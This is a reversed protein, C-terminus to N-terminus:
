SRGVLKSAFRAFAEPGETEFVHASEAALVPAVSAYVNTSKITRLDTVQRGVLGIAIIVLATLWFWGFIRLFLRHV